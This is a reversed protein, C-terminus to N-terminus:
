FFLFLLVLSGLILLTTLRKQAKESQCVTVASWRSICGGKGLKEGELERLEHGCTFCGLSNSIGIVEKSGVTLLKRLFLAL